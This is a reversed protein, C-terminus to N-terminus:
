ARGQGRGGPAAREVLPARGDHPRHVRRHHRGQEDKVIYDIDRKFMVNARLAQDLHHVVQTNEVDYLNATALLAAAILMQEVHEIGDETLASTRADERRGRLLEELLTKVIADLAVYLDSKDETPGSIILPTRAEDILIPDVEDVIAFNFPRQVQQGREHKM